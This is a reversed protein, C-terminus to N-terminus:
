LSKIFKIKEQKTLNIKSLLEFMDDREKLFRYVYEKPLKSVTEAINYSKDKLLVNFYFELHKESLVDLNEDIFQLYDHMTYGPIKNLGNIISKRIEFDIKQYKFIKNFYTGHDGKNIADIIKYAFRESNLLPNKLVFQWPTESYHNRLCKEVNFKHCNWERFWFGLNGSYTCGNCVMHNDMTDFFLNLEQENWEYPMQINKAYFPYDMKAIDLLTFVIDKNGYYNVFLKFWLPCEYGDDETFTEKYSFRLFQEINDKNIKSLINRVIFDGSVENKKSQELAKNLNLNEAYVKAYQENMYEFQEQIDSVRKTVEQKIIEEISSVFAPKEEEYYDM